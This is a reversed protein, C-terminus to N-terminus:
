DIFEMLKWYENGSAISTIEYNILLTRKIPKKIIKPSSMWLNVKLIQPTRHAGLGSWPALEKSLSAHLFGSSPVPGATYNIVRTGFPVNYSTM